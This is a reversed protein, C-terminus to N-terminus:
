RPKAFIMCCYGFGYGSIQFPTCRGRDGHFTAYIRASGDDVPDSRSISLPSSYLPHPSVSFVLFYIVDGQVIARGAPRRRRLHRVQEIHIPSCSNALDHLITVQARKDQIVATHQCKVRKGQGDM